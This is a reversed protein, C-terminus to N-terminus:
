MSDPSIGISPWICMFARVNKFLMNRPIVFTKMLHLSTVPDLGNNGHLGASLLSYCTMRAKTVNKNITDMTTDKVTSSRQIGLHTTTDKVTSSRQIGLHTTTDKVTSSRQISLHTTTDKSVVVWKPICLDDVTLSVVVWKPICLDDV